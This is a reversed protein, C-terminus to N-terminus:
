NKLEVIEILEFLRKRFEYKRISTGNYEAPNLNGYKDWKGDPYYMYESEKGSFHNIVASKAHNIKKWSSKKSRMILNKGRYQAVYTKAKQEKQASFMDDLFQKILIKPDNM